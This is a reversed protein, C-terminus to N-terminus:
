LERWLPAKESFSMSRGSNCKGNVDASAHISVWPKLSGWKIFGGYTRLYIFLCVYMIMCVYLCVYMCVYLCVSMCVVYLCVSMCVYLCVSMCVYVSYSYLYHSLDLVCIVSVIKVVNALWLPLLNLSM